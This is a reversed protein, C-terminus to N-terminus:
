LSTVKQKALEFRIISVDASGGFADKEASQM